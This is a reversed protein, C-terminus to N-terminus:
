SCPRTMCQTRCPMVPDASAVEEVPAKCPLVVHVTVTAYSSSCVDWNSVPYHTKRTVVDDSVWYEDAKALYAAALTADCTVNSDGPGCSHVWALAASAWFLGQYPNNAPYTMNPAPAWTKLGV